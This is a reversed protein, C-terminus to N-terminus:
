GFGVIGFLEPEQGNEYHRADDEDKGTYKM